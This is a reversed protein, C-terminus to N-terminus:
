FTLLFKIICRILRSDKNSILDGIEKAKFNTLDMGQTTIRVAERWHPRKIGNDSFMQVVNFSLFRKVSYTTPLLVISM